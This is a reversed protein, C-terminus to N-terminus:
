AAGTGRSLLPRHRADHRHLTAFASQPAPLVLHDLSTANYELGSAENRVAFSMTTPQSAVGLENLLHTLLPYNQPNFVIFGSDIAYSRGAQVIEHTHTHGGLYANAEYLTVEHERSLLWASGLGAIGAGIIAIRM